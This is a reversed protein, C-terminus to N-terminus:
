GTEIKRLKQDRVGCVSGLLEISAVEDELVWWERNGSGYGSFYSTGYEKLM